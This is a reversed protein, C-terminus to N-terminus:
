GNVLQPVYTAFEFGIADSLWFDGYKSNLYVAAGDFPIQNQRFALTLQLVKIQFDAPLQKWQAKAANKRGNKLLELIEFFKDFCTM